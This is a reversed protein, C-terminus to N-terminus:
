AEVPQASHHRPEYVMIYYALKEPIATIVKALSFGFHRYIQVNGETETELVCRINTSDAEALVSRMMSSMFKQGQFRRAVAIMDVYICDGYAGTSKRLEMTAKSTSTSRRIMTFISAHWLVKIPLLFARAIAKLLAPSLRRKGPFTVCLVGEMNESTAFASGTTISIEMITRYITKMARMRGATDPMIYEFLPNDVFAEAMVDAAAQIHQRELRILGDLM